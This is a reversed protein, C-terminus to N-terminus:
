RGKLPSRQRPGRGPSSWTRRRPAGSHGCFRRPPPSSRPSRWQARRV